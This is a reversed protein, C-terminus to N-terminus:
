INRYRQISINYKCTTSTKSIWFYKGVLNEM